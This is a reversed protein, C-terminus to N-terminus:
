GKGKKRMARQYAEIKAKDKLSEKKHTKKTHHLFSTFDRSHQPTPMTPSPPLLPHPLIVHDTAARPATPPHQAATSPHHYPSQPYSYHSEPCNSFAHRSNNVPNIIVPNGTCYSPSQHQYPPYQSPTHATAYSGPINQGQPIARRCLICIRTRTTCVKRNNSSSSSNYRHFQIISCFPRTMM